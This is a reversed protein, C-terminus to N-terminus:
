DNQDVFTQSSPRRSESRGSARVLWRGLVASRVVCPILGVTTAMRGLGYRGAVLAETTATLFVGGTAAFAALMLAAAARDGRWTAAVILLAAVVADAVLFGHIFEGRWANAGQWALIIGGLALAVIRSTRIM